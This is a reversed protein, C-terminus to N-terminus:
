VVRRAYWRNTSIRSINVCVMPASASATSLRSGNVLLCLWLTFSIPTSMPRSIRTLEGSSSASSHPPRSWSTPLIPTGSATRSLGSRRVRSSRIIM